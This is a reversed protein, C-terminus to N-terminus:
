TASRVLMRFLIALRISSSLGRSITLPHAPSPVARPVFRTITSISCTARPPNELTTSSLESGYVPRLTTWRDM